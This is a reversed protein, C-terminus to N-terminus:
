ANAIGSYGPVVESESVDGARIRAEVADKFAAFQKKDAPVFRPDFRVVARNGGRRWDFGEIFAVLRERRGESGAYICFGHGMEGGSRHSLRARQWYITLSSM